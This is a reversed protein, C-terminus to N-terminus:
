ADGGSPAPAAEEAPGSTPVRFVFRQYLYGIGILTLGLILFTSVRLLGELDAMDFLFAKAVTIMLVALSVYRPMTSKGVIGIALLALAYILWVLSYTYSEADGIQHASLVPGHYAHRVELSLYAFVLVVGLIASVMAPWVPKEHQFRKALFFAFGAPVAYALFLTNFVPYDGVFTLTQIPNSVLLHFFVIQAAALGLLIRSGYLAVQNAHRQHRIALATGISLWTIAHFSQELLSYSFSDLSGAVFLRIHFSVLLVAFALAGAQLSPVLFAAKADRFYKAAWFFALAPVGYGYILWTSRWLGDVPYDL